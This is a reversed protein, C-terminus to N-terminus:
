VSCGGAARDLYYSAGGWLECTTSCPSTFANDTNALSRGGALPPTRRLEAWLEAAKRPHPARFPHFCTGVIQTADFGARSVTIGGITPAGVTTIRECNRRRRIPCAKSSSLM